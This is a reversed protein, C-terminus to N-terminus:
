RSNDAMSFTTKIKTTKPTKRPPYKIAFFGAQTSIVHNPLRFRSDKLTLVEVKETGSIEAKGGGSPLLFVVYCLHDKYKTPLRTIVLNAAPPITPVYGKNSVRVQCPLNGRGPTTPGGALWVQLDIVRTPM